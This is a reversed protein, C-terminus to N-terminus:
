KGRFNQFTKGPNKKMWGRHSPMQAKAGQPTGQAGMAGMAAFIGQMALQREYIWLPLEQFAM